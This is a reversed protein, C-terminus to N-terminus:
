ADSAELRALIAAEVEDVSIAGFCDLHGLPCEREFCPSCALRHHIVTARPSLPGTAVDCTSGFLAVLPAGLAAALHMPGSDNALVCDARGLMALLQPVSTQGVLDSLQPHDALGSAAVAQEALPREGPAGLLVVRYDHREILRQCLAGFREPAWRKAPGFAAGPNIAILRRDPDPPLLAHTLAPTDLELQLDADLPAETDVPEGLGFAALLQLYRYGQHLGASRDPTTHTLLMRRADTPYGVRRPIGATWVLLAAEFANQLLLALDYGRPRLVGRAFRWFGGLGKHQGKRDYTIVEDVFPTQRLLADIGPKAIVEIRAEPLRARLAKLAPATMAVDGFWNTARVVIRAAGPLHSALDM